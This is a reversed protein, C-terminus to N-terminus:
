GCEGERWLVVPLSISGGDEEAWNGGLDIKMRQTVQGVASSEAPWGWAGMEGLGPHGMGPCVVDGALGM